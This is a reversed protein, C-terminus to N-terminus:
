IINKNEKRQLICKELSLIPSEFFISLLFGAAFTLAVHSLVISALNWISLYTPNRLTGVSCLEVLGNVLYACYTLRSLPAFPKWSLFSKLLGSNSTACLIMICGICISWAVKHLSAYLASEVANYEYNPLYFITITYVSSIGLIVSLIWGSRILSKPLTKNLSQLKHVIYGSALGICYSTSRMHTKMYAFGFYYNKTIDSIESPYAMQTPDLRYWFTVAFPVFVATFTFIGLIIEGLRPVKWLLYILISAILFLHTDVALYWSQFMCLNEANVYNNIYLLNIWWSEICRNQEALIKENWLPGNNLKKLITAYLGIVVAYSPTLRIYRVAYLLLLNVKGEQKILELLLLRCMLFGGMLLFTEVWLPNNLLLANQPKTVSRAYFEENFVPGGIVFLLTHSAIIFVMSIFKLGFIFELNMKKDTVHLLNQINQVLSFSIIIKNYIMVNGDASEPNKKKLIIHYVTSTLVLVIIFGVVICYVMESQEFSTQQEFYCNHPFVQVKVDQYEIISTLFRALFKQVETSSCTSPVCIAWHLTDNYAIREKPKKSQGLLLAIFEENKSNTQLRIDALCYKGQIGTGISDKVSVCEDFNGFQYYVGYMLGVPFKASSDFIKWAWKERAIIGELVNRSNNRCLGDPLTNIAEFVKYLNLSVFNQLKHFTENRDNEQNVNATNIMQANNLVFICTIIITSSLEM